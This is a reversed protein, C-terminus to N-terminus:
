AHFVLALGDDGATVIRGGDPGCVFGMIGGGGDEGGRHGRWEKIPGNDATWSRLDWRRLVGDLGCSDLLWGSQGPVFDVRVVSLGDHASPIQRRVAYHHEADLISISGDVSGAALLTNSSSTRAVALTEVSESHASVSALVQGGAASLRSLSVVKVAGTAGGVAVFAGHPDVAVSFLGGEVAFRQDAATLSVAAKADAGWVDWVYLSGDESVTALLSGDLSWAGATCSATHQYYSRIIDLSSQASSIAYVWVSGDSAGLAIVGPHSDSAPCAALWNIEDVERAEDLLSVTIAAEGGGVGGLSWARLRGDLGGSLLVDGRPLTWCLASISDSHGDLKALADIRSPSSGSYSSPLVPTKVDASFVWGAGPADEDRGASGGVAIVSHQLPHQAIAFLSDPPLDFYAIADNQLALEEEGDDSDMAADQEDDDDIEEAADDVPLLNDMDPEEDRRHGAAEEASSSM